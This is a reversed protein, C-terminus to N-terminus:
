LDFVAGVERDIPGQHSAFLAAAAERASKSGLRTMTAAIEGAVKPAAFSTGSWRAWRRFSQPERGPIPRAHGAEDFELFTSLVKVGRAAADVWWGFNSFSARELRDDVAGVALVRKHAAPWLPRHTSDNGAAAVVVTTPSVHRLAEAIALPPQDDYSYCGLSLNIVDADAHDLIARAVDLESGYGETDLVKAIEITASPAQQLVVGAIFTGHGSEDDLWGNKPHVDTAELTDPAARTRDDLWPHLKPTYGTDIVAVRVGDGAGAAFDLLEDAALPFGAPGGQVFPVGCLVHHPAVRALADATGGGRLQAVAGQVDAGAPVLFRLLREELEPTTDLETAGLEELTRALSPLDDRAVLLENPAHLHPREGGTLRVDPRDRLRLERHRRIADRPHSPERERAM